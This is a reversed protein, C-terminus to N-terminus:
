AAQGPQDFARVFFHALKYFLQLVWCVSMESCAQTGSFAATTSCCLLRQENFSSDALHTCTAYADHM